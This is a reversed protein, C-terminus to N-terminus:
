ECRIPATRAFMAWATPLPHCIRRASIVPVPRSWVNMQEHDARRFATKAAAEVRLDGAKGAVVHALQKGVALRHLDDADALLAEVDQTAFEGRQDDLADVQAFDLLDAEFIGVLDALLTM